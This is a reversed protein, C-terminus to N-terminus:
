IMAQEINKEIQVSIKYGAPNFKGNLFSEKILDFEAEELEIIENESKEVKNMINFITRQISLPVGEKYRTMLAGIIAEEFWRVEDTPRREDPLFSFDLKWKFKKM